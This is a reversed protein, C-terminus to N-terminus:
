RVKRALIHYSYALSLNKAFIAELALFFPLITVNLFLKFPRDFITCFCSCRIGCKKTMEIPPKLKWSSKRMWALMKAMPLLILHWATLGSQLSIVQFGMRFLLQVTEDAEYHRLHGVYEDWINWLSRRCPVSLILHGGTKLNGRINEVAAVHGRYTIFHFRSIQM